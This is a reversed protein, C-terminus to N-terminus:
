VQYLLCRLFLLVLRGDFPVILWHFAAVFWRLWLISIWFCCFIMSSSKSLSSLSSRVTEAISSSSATTLFTLVMNDWCSFLASWYDQLDYMITVTRQFGLFSWVFSSSLLLAIEGIVLSALSSSSFNVFSTSLTWGTPSMFFPLYDLIILNVVWLKVPFTKKFCLCFLFFPVSFLFCFWLSFLLIWSFTWGDRDLNRISSSFFAFSAKYHFSWIQM